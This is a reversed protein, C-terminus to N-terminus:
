KATVRMSRCLATADALQTASPRWGRKPPPFAVHCYVWGSRVRVGRTIKSSVRGRDDTECTATFGAPEDVSTLLTRSSAGEGCPRDPTGGIDPLTTASVSIMPHEFAKDDVVWTRTETSTQGPQFAAPIGLTVTLSPPRNASLDPQSLLEFTTDTLPAFAIAVEVPETKAPETSNGCAAAALVLTARM